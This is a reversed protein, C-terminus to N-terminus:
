EPREGKMWREYARVVPSKKMWRKNKIYHAIDAKMERNILELFDLMEPNIPGGPQSASCMSVFQEPTLVEGQKRLKEKIADTSKLDLV